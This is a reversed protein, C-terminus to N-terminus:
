SFSLSLSHSLWIHLSPSLSLSVRPNLDIEDNKYFSLGVILAATILLQVNKDNLDLSPKAESSMTFVAPHCNFFSSIAFMPSAAVCWAGPVSAFLSVYIPM